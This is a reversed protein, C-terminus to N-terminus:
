VATGYFSHMTKGNVSKKSGFLWAHYHPYYGTQTVNDKKINHLIFASKMVKKSKTATYTYCDIGKKFNNVAQSKSIPYNSILMDGVSSNPYESINSQTIPIAIYYEDNNQNKAVNIAQVTAKTLAYTIGGIVIKSLNFDLTEDIADGLSNVYVPNRAVTYTVVAASALLAIKWVTIGCITSTLLFCEEDIYNDIDEEYIGEDTYDFLNIKENNLIVTGDFDGNLGFIPELIATENYNTTDEKAYIDLKNESKNYNLTYDVDVMTESSDVYQIGTIFSKSITKVASISFGFDNKSYESVSYEDNIFDNRIENSVNHVRNDLILNCENNKSCSFLLLGILCANLLAFIKKM